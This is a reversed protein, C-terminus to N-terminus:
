EAAKWLSFFGPSYHFPGRPSFKYGRLENNFGYFSSQWFLWTCPQDAYILEDIKAYIEARKKRDFERKGAEYLRDVEANSYGGFNRPEGTKWINESTAPDSGAGWGGFAAQFEHKMTKEQLVTFEMPRVNCIIGIQDLNEKLLTCIDIRLQVGTCLISFEFPVSKGDIEKDRIGDGDHDIWGAEDLLEEAKTLDQHYYPLPKKPAMWSGPHFIGNGPQYLGYCLKSLMEDHNFAYGM